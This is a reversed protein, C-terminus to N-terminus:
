FGDLWNKNYNHEDHIDDYIYELKTETVNNYRDLDLIYAWHSAYQSKSFSYGLEKMKTIDYIPFGKEDNRYYFDSLSLMTGLKANSLIRNYSVESQIVDKIRVNTLKIGKNLYDRIFFFERYDYYFRDYNTRLEHVEIIDMIPSDGSNIIDKIIKCKDSYGRLESKAESIHTILRNKKDQTKGVYFVSLDCPTILRYIYGINFTPLNHADYTSVSM